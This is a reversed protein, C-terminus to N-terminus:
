LNSLRRLLYNALPKNPDLNLTSLYLSEDIMELYGYFDSLWGYLVGSLRREYGSSKIIPRGKLLSRHCRRFFGSPFIESLLKASWFIGTIWNGSLLGEKAVTIACYRGYEFSVGPRDLVIVTAEESKSKVRKKPNNIISVLPIERRSLIASLKARDNKLLLEINVLGEDFGNTELSFRVSDGKRGFIAKEFVREGIRIRLIEREIDELLVIGLNATEGIWLEDRELFAVFLDNNLIESIREPGIKFNRDFDLLGNCEWFVDSLETIVFGRINACLRIKDIEINLNELQNEVSIEFLERYSYEKSLESEKFRKLAGYPKTMSVGSFEHLFWHPIEEVSLWKEPPLSWNGFESVVLPRGKANDKFRDIYFSAPNDSYFEILSDWQDQQDISSVYFHYDNLDSKVHYNGTCASNDVWVIGPFREKFSMYTDKLWEVQQKDSQNIGWSENIISYLCLSPHHSDRSLACNIVEILEESGEDSFLDFHPADQWVILGVEDAIEMYKPDPVKVHHRITNVGMEKLKVFSERLFRESPITYLTEPYFDQDLVAKMYFDRGNLFLKGNEAVFDRFGVKRQVVDRNKGAELTIVLRYLNPTEPSWPLCSPLSISFSENGSSESVLLRDSKDFVEICASDFKDNTTF